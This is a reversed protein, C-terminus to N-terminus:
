NTLGGSFIGVNIGEDNLGPIDSFDDEDGSAPLAGNSSKSPGFAEAYAQGYGRGRGYGRGGGAYGELEAQAEEESPGAPLADLVQPDGLVWAYQPLYTVLANQCFAVWAGIIIPMDYDRLKDVRKAAYSAGLAFALSALPSAHKALKKSRKKALRYGVWGAAKGGAYAALGPLAMATFEAWALSFFGNRGYAPDPNKRPVSRKARRKKRNPRANKARSSANRVRRTLKSGATRKKAMTSGM